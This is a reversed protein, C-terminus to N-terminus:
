LNKDSVIGSNGFSLLISHNNVVANNNETDMKHSGKRFIRVALSDFIFVPNVDALISEVDDDSPHNLSDKAIIIFFIESVVKVSGSTAIQLIENLSLSVFFVSINLLSGIM